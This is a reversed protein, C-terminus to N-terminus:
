ISITASGHRDAPEAPRPNPDIGTHQPQVMFIFRGSHLVLMM